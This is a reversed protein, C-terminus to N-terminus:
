LQTKLNTIPLKKKSGAKELSFMWEMNLRKALWYLLIPVVIGLAICFVLMVPVISIHFVKSLVTRTFSTIIVHCVYIYLSYFGVRRLWVASDNKQLLFSINMIFTCGILAILIYALPQYYEVFVYKISHHSLNVLLFYIQSAIFLPLLVFFLKWSSFFSVNKEDRIYSAVMDGISFFIYYHCIDNVFSLDINHQANYASVGFLVIGLVLQYETKFRLMTKIIAYIVSVNFLAYLYWFQEVERPLYLLDLYNTIGKQASAYRSFFIQLTIQIAGWLFYPYLIVKCKNIIFKGLGRKALSSAVFAGSVIFFLPMRFSYFFVNAYELYKYNEISFGARKIGEFSHRYVVLIIAIGRAYDMWKYRKLNTQLDKIM